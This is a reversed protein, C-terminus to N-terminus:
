PGADTNLSKPLSRWPISGPRPLFLDNLPGKEFPSRRLIPLNCCCVSHMATIKFCIPLLTTIKPELGFDIKSANKVDKQVYDSQHIKICNRYIMQIRYLVKDANIEHLKLTQLHFLAEKLSKNYAELIKIIKITKNLHLFLPNM